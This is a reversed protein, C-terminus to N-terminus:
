KKLWSFIVTGIESQDVEIVSSVAAFGVHSRCRLALKAFGDIDRSLDLRTFLWQGPRPPTLVRFLLAKNVAVVARVPSEGQQGQLTAVNGEFRVRHVIADEDFPERRASASPQVSVVGLGLSQAGSMWTLTADYRAPDAFPASSEEVLVRDTKMLRGLKFRLDTGGACRPRLADFLTTGHLYDRHGLYSLTLLEGSDM